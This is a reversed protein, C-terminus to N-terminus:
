APPTNPDPSPRFKTPFIRQTQRHRVGIARYDLLSMNSIPPDAATQSLRISRRSLSLHWMRHVNDTILGIPRFTKHILSWRRICSKQSTAVHRRKSESSQLCQETEARHLMGSSRLRWFCCCQSFRLYRLCIQEKWNTATPRPHGSQLRYPLNRNMLTNPYRKLTIVVYPPSLNSNPLATYAM